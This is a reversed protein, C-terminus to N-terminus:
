SNIILQQYIAQKQEDDYGWRNLFEQYVGKKNKITNLLLGIKEEIESLSLDDILILSRKAVRASKKAMELNNNREHTIKMATSMAVNKVLLESVIEASTKLGAIIGSSKEDVFLNDNTLYTVFFGRAGNESIVLSSVISKKESESLEPIQQIFKETLAIAEEFTINKQAILSM